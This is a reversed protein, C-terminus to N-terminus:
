GVGVSLLRTSRTSLVHVEALGRPRSPAIRTVYHVGTAPKLSCGSCGATRGLLEAPDLLAQRKTKPGHELSVVPVQLPHISTWPSSTLRYRSASKMLAIRYQRQYNKPKAPM